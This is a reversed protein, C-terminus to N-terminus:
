RVVVVAAYAVSGFTNMLPRQRFRHYLTPASHLLISYFPMLYSESMGSHLSTYLTWFSFYIAVYFANLIEHLNRSHWAVCM